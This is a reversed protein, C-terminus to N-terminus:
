ALLKELEKELVEEDKETEGINDFRRIKNAWKYDPDKRIGYEKGGRIKRTDAKPLKAMYDDQMIFGPQSLTMELLGTDHNPDDEGKNYKTSTANAEWNRGNGNSRMVNKALKGTAEPLVAKLKEDFQKIWEQILTDLSNDKADAM